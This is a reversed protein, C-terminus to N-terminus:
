QPIVAPLPEKQKKLDDISKEDTRFVEVTTVNGDADMSYRYAALSPFTRSQSGEETGVKGDPTIVFKIDFAIDVLIM